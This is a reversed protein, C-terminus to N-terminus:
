PCINKIEFNIDADGGRQLGELKNREWRGTETNGVACYVVQLGEAAQQRGM